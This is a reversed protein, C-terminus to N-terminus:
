KVYDLISESHSPSFIVIPDEGNYNEYMHSILPILLEYLKKRVKKEIDPNMLESHHAPSVTIHIELPGYYIAGPTHNLNRGKQRVRVDSVDLIWPYKKVLFHKLPLHDLVLPDKPKTLTSYIDTVTMGCWREYHYESLSSTTTPTNRPQEKKIKDVIDAVMPTETKEETPTPNNYIPPYVTYIGGQNIRAAIRAHADDDIVLNVQNVQNEAMDPLEPILPPKGMLKNIFDVIIM